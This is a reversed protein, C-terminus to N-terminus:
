EKVVRKVVKGGDKVRDSPHLIVEHGESLGRAVEAMTQNRHGVEVTRLAARGQEVVFVAWGGERRFLAGLPVGVVKRGKLIIKDM